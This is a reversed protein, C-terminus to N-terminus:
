PWRRGSYRRDVEYTIVADPDLSLTPEKYELLSYPDVDENARPEGLTACDSRGFFLM